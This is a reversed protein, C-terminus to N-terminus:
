AGYTGDAFHNILGNVVYQIDNDTSAAGSSQVTANQVVMRLLKSMTASGPEEAIIAKAWLVRNDHNATGADENLIDYAAKWTAAVVKNTIVQNAALAQIEVLTAM